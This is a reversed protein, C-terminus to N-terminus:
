KRLSNKWVGLRNEMDSIDQQRVPVSEVVYNGIVPPNLLEARCLEMNKYIAGVIEKNIAYNNRDAIVLFNKLTAHACQNLKPIQYSAQDLSFACQAGLHFRLLSLYVDPSQMAVKLMAARITEAEFGPVREACYAEIPIADFDLGSDAKIFYKRHFFIAQEPKGSKILYNGYLRQSKKDGNEALEKARM